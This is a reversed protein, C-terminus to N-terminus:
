PSSIRSGRGGGARADWTWEGLWLSERSQHRAVRGFQKLEGAWCSLIWNATLNTKEGNQYCFQRWVLSILALVPLLPTCHLFGAALLLTHSVSSGTPVREMARPRLPYRRERGNRWSGQARFSAPTVCRWLIRPLTASGSLFVLGKRASPLWININRINRSPQKCTM